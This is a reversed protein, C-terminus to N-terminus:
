VLGHGGTMVRRGALAILRVTRTDGPEFRAATGAPVDLRRGYAAMRDFALARNVEAFHYHSGVQIPRDGRNAVEIEIAERGANLEIEGAPHLYGGIPRGGSVPHSRPLLHAEHRRPVDSRCPRRDAAGPGRGDRRRPDPRSARDRPGGFAPPRRARGRAHGGHDARDGGAPQAEAGAAVVGRWRRGW